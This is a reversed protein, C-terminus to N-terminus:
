LGECAKKLMANFENILTESIDTGMDANVGSVIMEETPGETLLRHLVEGGSILVALTRETTTAVRDGYKVTKLHKLAEGLRTPYDQTM